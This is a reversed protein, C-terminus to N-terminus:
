RKAKTHQKLVSYSQYIGLEGAKSLDSSFDAVPADTQIRLIGRNFYAQAFNSRLRIASTLDDIALQLKATKAYAYARNYYAEAFQPQQEVVTTLDLIAAEYEGVLLHELATAFAPHPATAEEQYATLSLPPLLDANSNRNQIKGRYESEYKRDEEEDDVILKQFDDLNVESKKRTHVGQRSAATSYGYHHAIQEKLIHEEDANAGRQDGIRRRAEARRHYGQLFNPYQQILTTYDRIAGRYDGTQFLLEARNYIVMVDTPDIRLIFDFDEIALNDEGVQSRLLGRNYHAVFNTPDLDIAQDYDSMAGRLNNRHYRALARNIYNHTNKPQLRIAETLLTDVHQWDERTAYMSAKFSLSPVNYPDVQLAKDTFAEAAVTDTQALLIQAKMVYGDAYKPWKAIIINSISDARQLSDLEINCLVWNHWLAKSEPLYETAQRYDDSALQYKGLNIRALGRVEYTNPFYPNREIAETCDAETGTYDELYFKALGRYFYPEYLYPKALIVRNFYQISLVYDDYYLANRGIDMMRDTNIQATLPLSCLTCLLVCSMRLARLWRAYRRCIPHTSCKQRM